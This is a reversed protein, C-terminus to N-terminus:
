EVTLVGHMGAAYHGPVTCVYIYEGADSVTFNITDEGNAGAELLETNAMVLEADPPMHNEEAPYTEAELAFAEAEAEDSTNLLLWNHPNVVSDNALTLSVEEGAPVPGLTDKDFLLQEGQNAITLDTSAEGGGAAEGDGGEAAEGDGGEAAEGDGGEAAEGDGAEEETAADGGGDDTAAGGGGGGCATMALALALVGSILWFRLFDKM